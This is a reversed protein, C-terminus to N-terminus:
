RRSGQFLEPRVRMLTTAGIVIPVDLALFSAMMGVVIGGLLSLGTTQWDLLGPLYAVVLQRVRESAFVAGLISGAIMVLIAIPLLVTCAFREAPSQEAIQADRCAKDAVEARRGSEYGAESMWPERNM